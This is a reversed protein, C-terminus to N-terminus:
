KYSRKTPKVYEFTLPEKHLAPESPNGTWEWAAVYSYNEDDRLAEGNEQYEERFHGGCSENRDL